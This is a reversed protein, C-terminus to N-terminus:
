MKFGLEFKALEWEPIHKRQIHRKLHSLTRKKPDISGTSIAQFCTRCTAYKDNIDPPQFHNWIASRRSSRGGSIISL